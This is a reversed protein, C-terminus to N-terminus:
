VKYSISIDYWGRNSGVSFSAGSTSYIRLTAYSIIGDNMAIFEAMGLKNGNDRVYVPWQSTYVTSSPYVPYYDQPVSALLDIQVLGATSVTGTLARVTLTVADGIRVVDVTASVALAGSTTIIYSDSGYFDLNAAGVSGPTPLYLGSTITATDITATTIPATTITATTITAAPITVTGANNITL